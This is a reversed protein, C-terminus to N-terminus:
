RKLAIAALALALLALAFPSLTPVNGGFAVPTTATASNNAPTLDLTASSVTATNVASPGTNVLVTLNFTASQGSTMTAATCTVTTTGSCNFAPTGGTQNMSVFTTNAPIVDTLVVSAAPSPGNNTVTITYSLNAGSSTSAPGTKTVALDAVPLTSFPQTSSNNASSPDSTTASVTATNSSTGPSNVTTTLTFTATAGAPMTAATCTVTTTGSCAFAPTGSSQNMSVFTLSAPLVDTLTVGAADSPGGNHVTITFAMPQGVNGTVPGTKTVGLDASGVLATTATSTNNGPTMDTTASTITATNSLIGTVSPAPLVTLTFAAPTSPLLSAISCSITAGTTCTFTPGSTQNLSVFATGAPLIDSWNVGTAASPGGNSVTISYAFAVGPTASAPGIKVISLDAQTSITTTASSSNNSPDSDFSESTATATNTLLTGNPTSPSVAVTVTFQASQGNGLFPITCSVTQGGVFTAAPGNNQLVSVFTEQSPLTDTFSANTATDPGGNSLV